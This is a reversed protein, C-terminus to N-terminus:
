TRVAAAARFIEDVQDNTLGLAQRVQEIGLADRRIHPAYEWDDRLAHDTPLSAILAEVQDRLGADRLARRLHHAPVSAAASAADAEIQARLAALESATADREAIAANRAAEAAAVAQQEASLDELLQAFAANLAEVQRLADVHILPLVHNLPYGGAGDHIPQISLDSWRIHAGRYNGTAEDWRLLVEYPKREM